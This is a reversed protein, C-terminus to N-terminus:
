PSKALTAAGGQEMGKKKLEDLTKSPDHRLIVTLMTKGDAVPEQAPLPALAMLALLAFTPVFRRM